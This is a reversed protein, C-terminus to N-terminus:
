PADTFIVGAYVHTGFDKHVLVERCGLDEIEFGFKRYRDDTEHFSGNTYAGLYPKGSSPDVFDAWYGLNKLRECVMLSYAVFKKLLDEREELVQSSWESMDQETQQAVVLVRAEDKTPNEGFIDSFDKLSCNRVQLNTNEMQIHENRQLKKVQTLTNDKSEASVLTQENEM